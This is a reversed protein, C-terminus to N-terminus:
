IVGLESHMDVIRVMGVSRNDNDIIPLASIRKNLTNLMKLADYALTNDLIAIPNSTMIDQSKLELLQEPKLKKLIRRIDGDTIIGILYGQEDVVNVAGLNKKNMSEIVDIWYDTPRVVPNNEGSYMFDSVRMTLRKGLSGSPHNLAFKDPTVKKIAMLVVAIADGIALAVTTSATPVLNYPDAEKEIFCSLYADANKALTSNVNGIIAIIPVQRYRLYPLVKIVEETEGSNSLIIAVDEKSAIGFDGHLAESPHLYISVCGISNLTSAIKKAIIGSKGIGTLIFKGSCKNLVEIVKDLQVNDINNMTHNIARSEQLLVDKFIKLYSRDLCM